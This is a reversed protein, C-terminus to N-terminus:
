LSQAPRITIREFISAAMGFRERIKPVMGPFGSGQGVSAAFDTVETSDM